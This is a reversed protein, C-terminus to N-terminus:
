RWCLLTHHLLWLSCIWADLLARAIDTLLARELAAGYRASASSVAPRQGTVDRRGALMVVPAPRRGNGPSAVSLPLWQLCRPSGVLGRVLVCVANGMMRAM